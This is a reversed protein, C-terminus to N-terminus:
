SRCTASFYSVLRQSIICLTAATLYTKSNLLVLLVPVVGVSASAESRTKAGHVGPHVAAAEPPGPARHGSPGTARLCRRGAVPRARPGSIGLIVILPKAQHWRMTFISVTVHKCSRSSHRQSKLSLIIASLHAVLRQSM